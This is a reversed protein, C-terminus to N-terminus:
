HSKDLKKLNDMGDIDMSESLDSIDELRLNGTISMLFFNDEGGILMLLENIRDPVNSNLVYFRVQEDEERISMLEEYAKPKVLKDAAENYLRMGEGPPLSEAALMHLGTLRSVVEKMEEGDEEAKNAFMNFMRPSIYISTFGEQDVYQQFYKSIANNQAQGALSAVLLLFVSLSRWVRPHFKSKHM